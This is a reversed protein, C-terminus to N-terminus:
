QGFLSSEATQLGEDIEARLDAVVSTKTLALNEMEDPDKSLDYLEDREKMDPYGRYNILKYPWRINSISAKTVPLFRSNQKAEVTFVPRDDSWTGAFPPLIKGDISEPKPKGALHLLTPMLDVTSTVSYVDKRQTQGPAHILLPVHLLGEFLAPTLHGHIGREFLEGHDSTVILYSTELVGAEELRRYLRGLENDVNAIYEDYRQRLYLLKHTSENETFAHHPKELFEAQDNKFLDVFEARPRYPDHPPFLHIYAFFPSETDSLVKFSWDMADELVYFYDETNKALGLPYQKRLLDIESQAVLRNYMDAFPFFYASTSIGRYDDRWRKTAYFGMPYDNDFMEPLHNPNVRMLDQMPTLLDIKERLQNLLYSVHINHTYALTTYDAEVFESFINPEERTRYISSLQQFARHKWPYVGTFLSATSPMTYNGAAHHNHFITSKEALENFFPTTNRFYGYLSMHRASLTDFLLVIINPKKPVTSFSARDLFDGGLKLASLVAGTGLLGAM